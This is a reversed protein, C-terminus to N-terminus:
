SSIYTNNRNYNYQTPNQYKRRAKQNVSPPILNGNRRDRDEPDSIDIEDAINQQNGFLDSALQKNPKITSKQKSQLNTNIQVDKTTLTSTLSRSLNFSSSVAQGQYEIKVYNELGEIYNFSDSSVKLTSEFHQSYYKSDWINKFEDSLNEIQEHFTEGFQIRKDNIHEFNDLWFLFTFESIIKIIDSTTIKLEEKLEMIKTLWNNYNMLDNRLKDNVAQITKKQDNLYATTNRLIEYTTSPIATIKTSDQSDEHRKLFTKIMDPLTTENQFNYFTKRNRKEDTLIFTYQKNLQDRDLQIVPLYHALHIRHINIQQIHKTEKFLNNKLNIIIRYIIERNAQPCDSAITFPTLFHNTISQPQYNTDM